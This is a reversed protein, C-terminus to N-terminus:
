YRVPLTDDLRRRCLGGPRVLLRARPEYLIVKTYSKGTDHTKKFNFFHITLPRVAFKQIRIVSSKSREYVGFM